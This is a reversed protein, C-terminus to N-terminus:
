EEGRWLPRDTREVNCHPALATTLVRVLAKHNSYLAYFAFNPRGKEDTPNLWELWTGDAYRVLYHSYVGEPPNPRALREIATLGLQSEAAAIAAEVLSRVDKLSEAPGGTRPWNHFVEFLTYALYLALLGKVLPEPISSGLPLPRTLGYVMMAIFPAILALTAIRKAWLSWAQRGVVSIYMPALFVILFGVYFLLWRNMM